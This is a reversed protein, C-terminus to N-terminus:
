SRRLLDRQRESWLEAVSRAIDGCNRKLMSRVVYGIGTSGFDLNRTPGNPRSQKVSILTFLQQCMDLLMELELNPRKNRLLNRAAKRGIARYEVSHLKDELRLQLDTQLSIRARRNEVILTILAIFVALMSFFSAIESISFKM